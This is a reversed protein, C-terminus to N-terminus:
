PAEQKEKLIRDAVEDWAHFILGARAPEDLRGHHPFFVARAQDAVESRQYIRGCPADMLQLSPNFSTPVRFLRPRPTM